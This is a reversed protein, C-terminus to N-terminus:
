FNKTSDYTKFRRERPDSGVDAPLFNIAIKANQSMDQTINLWNQYFYFNHKAWFFELFGIFDINTLNRLNELPNQTNQYLQKKYLCKETHLKTDSHLSDYGRAPSIIIKHTAYVSKSSHHGTKHLVSGNLPKFPPCTQFTECSSYQLRNLWSQAVQPRGRNRKGRDGAKEHLM